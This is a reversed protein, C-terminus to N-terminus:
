VVSSDRSRVTSVSSLFSHSTNNRIACDSWAFTRLAECCTVVAEKWMMGVYDNQNMRENM